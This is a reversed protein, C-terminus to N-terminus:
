IVECTTSGGNRETALKEPKPTHTQLTSTTFMGVEQCFHAAQSYYLLLLCGMDLDISGDGDTDFSKVLRLAEM